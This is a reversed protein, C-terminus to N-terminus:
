YSFPKNSFVFRTSDNLILRNYSRVMSEAYIDFYIMDFKLINKDFLEIAVNPSIPFYFTAKESAPAIPHNKQKRHDIMIAPNDSTFFPIRTQNVLVIWNRDSFLNAYFNSMDFSSIEMTHLRKYDSEGYQPINAFPFGKKIQTYISKYYNRFARTRIIQMAIQASFVDKQDSSLKVTPNVRDKPDVIVLDLITRLLTAYEGEIIAFFKEIAQKNDGLEEVDYFNKEVTFAEVGSSGTKGDLTNFYYLSSKRGQNGHMGFNALYCVPVTHQHVVEDKCTAM